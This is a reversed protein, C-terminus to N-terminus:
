KLAVTVYQTSGDDLKVGIHWYYGSQSKDTKYNFIYQRSTADWKFFSGSTAQDPYSSEDVSISSPLASGKAPTLWSPPTAAQVPVGNADFLQFKVPITSGAKFVSTTQGVFHATDNIPQLFGGFAYGVHYSCETAASLHGVNDEATGAPITVTHDGLASTDLPISGSSDTALGSGEDSATWIAVASADNPLVTAPCSPQM